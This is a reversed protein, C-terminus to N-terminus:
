FLHCVQLLAVFQSQKGNEQPNSKPYDNWPASLLISGAPGSCQWIWEIGDLFAFGQHTLTFGKHFFQLTKVKGFQKLNWLKKKIM